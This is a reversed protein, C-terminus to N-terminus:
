CRGGGCLTWTSRVGAAAYACSSLVGCYATLDGSDGSRKVIAEWATMRTRAVLTFEHGFIKKAGCM